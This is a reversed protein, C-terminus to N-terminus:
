TFKLITMFNLFSQSIEKRDKINPLIECMSARLGTHKLDPKKKMAWMSRLGPSM